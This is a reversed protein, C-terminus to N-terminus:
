EASDARPAAACNAARTPAAYRCRNDCPRRADDAPVERAAPPRRAVESTHAVAREHRHERGHVTRTSNCSPLDQSATAVTSRVAYTYRCKRTGISSVVTDAAFTAAAMSKAFARFARM